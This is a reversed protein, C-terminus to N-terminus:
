KSSVVCFQIINWGGDEEDISNQLIIHLQVKHIISFRFLSM